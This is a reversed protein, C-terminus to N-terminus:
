NVKQIERPILDCSVFGLAQIALKNFLSPIVVFFTMKLSGLCKGIM